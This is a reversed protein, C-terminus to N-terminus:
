CCHGPCSPCTWFLIFSPGFIRARNWSLISSSGKKNKVVIRIARSAWIKIFERELTWSTKLIEGTKIPTIIRGRIDLIASFRVAIFIARSFLISRLILMATPELIWTAKNKTGRKIKILWKILCGMFIKNLIRSILLIPKDTNAM